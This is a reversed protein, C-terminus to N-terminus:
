GAPYSQSPSIVQDSSSNVVAVVQYSGRAPNYPGASYACTPRDCSTSTTLLARGGGVLTLEVGTLNQGDRDRFAGHLYLRQDSGIGICAKMDINDPASQQACQWAVTVATATTSAAGSATPGPATSASPAGTGTQAAGSASASPTLAATVSGTAPGVSAGGAAGTVASALDVPLGVPRATGSGHSGLLLALTVGLTVSVILVALERRRRGLLSPRRL